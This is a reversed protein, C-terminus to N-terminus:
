IRSSAQLRSETIAAIIRKGILLGPKEVLFHTATSLLLSLITVATFRILFDGIPHGDIFHSLGCRKMLHMVAPHTLYISYSVRGISETIRNVLIASPNLYLSYALLCFAAGMLLHYPLFAGFLLQGICLAALVLLPRSCGELLRPLSVEKGKTIVLYLVIGLVFVPFQSPLFFYLYEAWIRKDEIVQMSGLICDLIRCLAISGILLWLASKLDRIRRFLFPVTLYFPMEVAISWGGPVISNMWYPNASYTFTFTTLVQAATIGPQSGAAYRPGLGDQWLYYLVACYFLPAIRFFRRLFFVASSNRDDGARADMSLFLTLASVIYFLQVGRMGEFVLTSFFEPYPESGNPGCHNVLVGLIALGRLADIYRHKAAPKGM